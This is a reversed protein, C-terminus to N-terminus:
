KRGFEESVAGILKPDKVATSNLSVKDAGCALLEKIQEVSMIGGGVTLPIFLEKKIKRVIELATKRRENTASIDLMVLEDAGQGYYKRALEIAEGAYELGIFNRGKVVKGDMVDLCPIIRKATM